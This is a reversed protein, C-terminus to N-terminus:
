IELGLETQMYRMEVWSGSMAMRKNTTEAEPSYINTYFLIFNHMFIFYWIGQM